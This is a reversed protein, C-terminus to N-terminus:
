KLPEKVWAGDKCREADKGTLRFLGSEYTQEDASKCPREKSHVVPKSADVTGLVWRGDGDCQQVQGAVRRLGGKSFGGGTESYCLSTDRKPRSQGAVGRPMSLGLGLIVPLILFFVSRRSIPGM